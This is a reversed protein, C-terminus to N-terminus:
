YEALKHFSVYMSRIESTGFSKKLNEDNGCDMVLNCMNFLWSSHGVVAIEVEPRSMIFETLFHYIRTSQDTTMERKRPNWNLNSMNKDTHSQLNSVYTYDLTPFENKTQSLPLCKNCTLFGLQERCGEHVIWPIRDNSRYYDSFTILATQIARHLPSMIVLQPRLLSAEHRRAECEMRGRQTLPSDAIDPLFFPNKLPNSENIDYSLNQDDYLQALLIHYSHGHRQFHIIKTITTSNFSSSNQVKIIEKPNILKSQIIIPRKINFPRTDHFYKLPSSILHSHSSTTFYGQNSEKNIQTIRSCSFFGWFNSLNISINKLRIHSFCRCRLMMM